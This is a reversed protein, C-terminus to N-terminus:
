KEVTEIKEILRLYCLSGAYIWRKHSFVGGSYRMGALLLVVLKM